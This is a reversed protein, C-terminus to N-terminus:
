GLKLGLGLGLRLVTGPTIMDEREDTGPVRVRVRDKLGVWSELGV